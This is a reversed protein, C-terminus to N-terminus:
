TRAPKSQAIAMVEGFWLATQFNGFLKLQEALFAGLIDPEDKGILERL